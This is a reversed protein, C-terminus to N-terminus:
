GHRFGQGSRDHQGVLGAQGNGPQYRAAHADGTFAHLIQIANNRDANLEGYSQYAVDVPELTLGCNLQLSDFQVSKTEVIM